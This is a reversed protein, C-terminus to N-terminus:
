RLTEEGVLDDLARRLTRGFSAWQDIMVHHYADHVDYQPVARGLLAALVEGANAAVLQSLEGRVVAVPCQVGPLSRTLDGDALASFIAPDVKWTFGGDPLPRLAREAVYTLVRVDPVPQPPMLRHRAVGEAVSDFRVGRRLSPVRAEAPPDTVISDVLVASDVRALGASAVEAVVLGGISHGVLHVPGVALRDVVGEVERAWGELSYRDRSGSDGHGSLDVALVDFTDVLWPVVHHWWGAHAATGHVLVVTPGAGSGWREWAVEVGDVGVHGREHPALPEDQPAM